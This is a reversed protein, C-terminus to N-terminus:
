CVRGRPYIISRKIQNIQYHVRRYQLSEDHNLRPAQSLYDSIIDDLLDLKDYLKKSSLRRLHLFIEEIDFECEKDDPELGMLWDQDINDIEQLTNYLSNWDRQKLVLPFLESM